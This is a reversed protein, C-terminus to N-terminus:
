LVALSTQQAAGKFVFLDRVRPSLTECEDALCSREGNACSQVSYLRAVM